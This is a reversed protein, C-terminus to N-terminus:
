FFVPPSEPLSVPQSVPSSVQLTVPLSAPPSVQLTAPMSVRPSAPPLTSPLSPPLVQLSEPSSKSQLVPPPVPTPVPSLVPPSLKSSVLLLKMVDASPVFYFIVISLSSIVSVVTSATNMATFCGSVDNAVAIFCSFLHLCALTFASVRPCQRTPALALISVCSRWLSPAEARHRSPMAASHRSPAVARHSLPAVARHCLPALACSCLPTFARCGKLAVACRRMPADVSCRLPESM